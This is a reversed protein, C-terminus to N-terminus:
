RRYNLHFIWFSFIHREIMKESVIRARIASIMLFSHRSECDQTLRISATVECERQMRIKRNLQSNHSNNMLKTEGQNRCKWFDGQRDRLRLLLYPVIDRPPYRRVHLFVLYSMVLSVFPGALDSAHDGNVYECLLSIDRCYKWAQAYNISQNM